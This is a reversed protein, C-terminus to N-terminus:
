TRDPSYYNVTVRYSKVNPAVDDRLDVSFPVPSGPLLARTVYGDSVWIVRGANDYYTALVHPISIPKGSEDMLSGRLISHGNADKEIRQDLVGVVPDAYAPILLTNPNIRVSKVDALKRGPFDIRFPSVERPLLTHSIKDFSSEEVIPNKDKDLLTASVTVFGPVTDENVVEGLIIVNGEKEIANMSIIRMRPAEVNQSGFEDRQESRQVIDWRLYPTEVTRVAETEEKPAQWLIRWHSDENRLTLVRQERLAGVATSWQLNARVSAESGSDSLLKADATELASISKLSGHSGHVDHIFQEKTLGNQPLAMAYAQDWDQDHIAQFFAKTAGEPSSDSPRSHASVTGMAILLFLVGALLIPVINKM